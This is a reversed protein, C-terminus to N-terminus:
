GRVLMWILPLAVLAGAIVGGVFATKGDGWAAGRSTKLRRALMAGLLGIPFGVGIALMSAAVVLAGTGGEPELGWSELGGNASAWGLLGALPALLGVPGGVLAGILRRRPAERATRRLHEDRRQKPSSM